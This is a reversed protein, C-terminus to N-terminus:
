IKIEKICIRRITDYIWDTSAGSEFLITTKDKESLKGSLYEVTEKTVGSKGLTKLAQILVATIYSLGTIEKNTVHKFKIKVTDNIIYNKYPGDSVYVWVAPVQTSLNLLNLATEGFPRITWHYNRAIAKAVDDPYAPIYERLLSSYKPKYFVGNFIRQLVGKKVLRSLSQRVSATDAIDSFDSATFVAGNAAHSLRDRLQKTCGYDVKIRRNVDRINYIIRSM